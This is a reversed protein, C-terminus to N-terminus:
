INDVITDRCVFQPGGFQVKMRITDLRASWTKFTLFSSSIETEPQIFSSRLPLKRLVRPHPKQLNTLNISFYIFLNTNPVKFFFPHRLRIIVTPLQSSIGTLQLRYGIDVSSLFTM